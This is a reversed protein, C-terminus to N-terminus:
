PLNRIVMGNPELGVKINKIVSKSAIDIVSVNGAGQNSIYALKGNRSFAIGHANAGTILEGLKTGDTANFFAVSGAEANTVWIDGSPSFAAMGPTFGLSITKVTDLQAVAIVTLTKDKENDVYMMNNSGPWAGVPNAGVPLTKLVTKLEVDIVTINNSMGNAVFAYKGDSSFTVEAPMDGVVLTKLTELTNADLVLIKGPMTMQSTWIEKGNPSFASNHNSADLVRSVLTRGTTAELKLIAGHTAMRHAGAGHGGSLNVGPVALALFLHDPSLYLHHPFTAGMLKIVSTEEQTNTNIVSISHEGGNVVFLADFDIAAIPTTSPNEAMTDEMKMSCGQFILLTSSGLVGLFYKIFMKISVEM